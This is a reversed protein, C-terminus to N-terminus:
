LLRRLPQAVLAPCSAALSDTASLGSFCVASLSCSMVGSSKEVPDSSTMERAQIKQDLQTLARAISVHEQDGLVRNSAEIESRIAEAAAHTDEPAQTLRPQHRWRGPGRVTGTSDFHHGCHRGVGDGVSGTNPQRSDVVLVTQSHAVRASPVKTPGGGLHHHGRSPGFSAVSRLEKGRIVMTPYPSARSAARTDELYRGSSHSSETIQKNPASWRALPTGVAWIRPANPPAPPAM